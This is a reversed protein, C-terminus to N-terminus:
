GCIISRDRKNVSRARVRIQVRHGFKIGLGVNAVTRREGVRFMLKM